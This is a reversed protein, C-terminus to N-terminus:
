SKILYTTRQHFFSLNQLMENQIEVLKLAGLDWWPDTWYLQVALIQNSCPFLFPGFIFFLAFIRLVFQLADLNFKYDSTAGIGNIM